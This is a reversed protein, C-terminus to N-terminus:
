STRSRCRPRRSRAHRRRHGDADDRRARGEGRDEISPIRTELDDSMAQAKVRAEKFPAPENPQEPIRLTRLATDRAEVLQRADGAHARGRPGDDAGADIADAATFSELAGKCIRRTASTAGKTM